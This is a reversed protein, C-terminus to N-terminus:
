RGLVDWSPDCDSKNETNENNQGKMQSNARAIVPFSGRQRQLLERVRGDVTVLKDHVAQLEERIGELSSQSHEQDGRQM